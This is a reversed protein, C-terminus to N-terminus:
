HIQKAPLFRIWKIASYSRSQTHNSDCKIGLAAVKPVQDSNFLKKYDEEINRRIDHWENLGKKGSGIVIYRVNEFNPSKGIEGIEMNTDWVYGITHPPSFIGKGKDFLIFLRFAADDKKRDTVNAASPLGSVYIRFEIEPFHKTDIKNKFKTGITTSADSNRMFLTEDKVIFPDAKGRQVKWGNEKFWQEIPMEKKPFKAVIFVGDKTKQGIKDQKQDKRELNWVTAAFMVIAVSVPVFSHQERRM